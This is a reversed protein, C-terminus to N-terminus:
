ANWKEISASHHITGIGKHFAMLRDSTRNQNALNHKVVYSQIYCVCKQGFHCKKHRVDSEKTLLWENTLHAIGTQSITSIVEDSSTLRDGPRNQNTLNHKVIYSQVPHFCKQGSSKKTGRMQNKGSSTMWQDNTQNPNAPNDKVMHNQIRQFCKQGSPMKKVCSIENRRVHRLNATRSIRTMTTVPCAAGDDPPRPTTAASTAFVVCWNMVASCPSIAM